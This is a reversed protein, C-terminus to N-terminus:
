ILFNCLFIFFETQNWCLNPIRLALDRSIKFNCYPVVHNFEVIGYELHVFLWITNFYSLHSLFRHYNCFYYFLLYDCIGRKRTGVEMPREGKYSDLITNRLPNENKKGRVRIILQIKLFSYMWEQVRDLLAM